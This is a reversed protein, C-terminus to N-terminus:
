RTPRGVHVVLWLIRILLIDTDYTTVVVYLHKHTDTHLLLDTTHRPHSTQTIASCIVTTPGQPLSVDNSFSRAHVGVRVGSFVCM